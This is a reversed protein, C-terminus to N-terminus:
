SLKAMGGHAEDVVLRAMELATHHGRNKGDGANQETGFSLYAGGGGNVFHLMPQRTTSTERYFELDHTDGAMVIAVEHERLLDHIAKFDPIDAAIYHGGAYLPHGLIAMKTKGRASTLGAKLWGLQVPDV